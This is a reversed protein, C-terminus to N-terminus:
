NYSLDPTEFFTKEDMFIRDPMLFRFLDFIIALFKTKSMKREDYSFCEELLVRLYFAETKGKSLEIFTKIDYTLDIALSKNQLKIFENIANNILMEYLDNYTKPDSSSYERRNRLNILDKTLKSMRIEDRITSTYLMLIENFFKSALHAKILTYAYLSDIRINHQRIGQYHLHIDELPIFWRSLNNFKVDSTVLKLQKLKEIAEDDHFFVAECFYRRVENAIGYKPNDFENIEPSQIVFNSDISMLRDKASTAIKRQEDLLVRYKMEMHPYYCLPENM